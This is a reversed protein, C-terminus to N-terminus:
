DPLAAAIRKPDYRRLTASKTDAIWLADIAYRVSGAGEGFFQQLLKGGEPTTEPSIRNVPFGPASAWLLGGGFELNADSGPLGLDVTASVKNTKPDIRAIKGDSRSWVWVSGAGSALATAGKVEVQKDVLNTKPEVRLLKDSKPCSVWLASEASLLSHCSAPLRLDAVIENSQPDIRLLTTRDDSLVWISDSTAVMAYAERSGGLPVTASAKGAQPDLRVASKDACSAAWLSPPTGPAGAVTVIDGCPEKVELTKGPQNTKTDIRLLAGESRQPALLTNRMLAVSGSLGKISISADPKLGTSADIQIGPTKIGGIPLKAGKKGQTQDAMAGLTLVLFLLAKM